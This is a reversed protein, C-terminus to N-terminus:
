CMSEDVDDNVLLPAVDNQQINPLLGDKRIVEYDACAFAATLDAGDNFGHQFADSSVCSCAGKPDLTFRLVAPNQSIETVNDHVHERGFLPGVIAKFLKPACPVHHQPDLSWFLFAGALSLHENTERSAEAIGLDVQGNRADM